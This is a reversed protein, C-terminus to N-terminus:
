SFSERTNRILNLISSLVYIFYRKLFGIQGDSDVNFYPTQTYFDGRRLAKLIVDRDNSEAMVIAAVEYYSKKRHFDLGCFALIDPNWKQFQIFRKMSVVQPLYKGEQRNWLEAGDLLQIWDKEIPYNGMTPHAFVAVGGCTQIHKIITAPDDSNCTLTVGYGLIDINDHCRFEIGPIILFESTSIRRCDAVLMDISEQNIDYSHETIALFDYGRDKFFKALENLTLTGDHSLTTHVHIIGRLWGANKTKQKSM